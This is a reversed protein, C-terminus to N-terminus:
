KMEVKMASWRRQCASRSRQVAVPVTLREADARGDGAPQQDPDLAPEVETVDFLPRADRADAGEGQEPEDRSNRSQDPRLALCKRGSRENGARRRDQRDAVQM